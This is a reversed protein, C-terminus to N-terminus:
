VTELATIRATLAEITAQQEKIAAVLLPITDSYSLGLQNPDQQDVAEPLASLFDQAILFSRRKTVKNAADYTYNGTVARIGLIKTLADTIPELNVKLREDSVATWATSTNVQYLGYSGIGGTGAGGGTGMYLNTDTSSKYGIHCEVQSAKLMYIQLAVNEPSTLSLGQPATVSPSAGGYGLQVDGASTIRMKEALVDGGRTSFAMYSNSGTAATQNLVEIKGFAGLVASGLGFNISPGVGAGVGSGSNTLNLACLSSAGSVDSHLKAAPATTGIGVNGASDIRMRESGSTSLKHTLANWNADLWVGGTRSYSQAWSGTTTDTYFEWGAGTTPNGNGQFAVGGGAVVLKATPSSTGVGLNTGDFTLASGSTLVKSGNLYTVGNATGGSLTTAGSASLTTFAGSSATSAGVTGNINISATGTLNTVVGSSPTGLAPTVLTPSTNLVNSGTGTNAVSVVNKSADLALATSATLGALNNVGSTSLTTFAGSSATSAGVSTGDVAGGNIDVTGSTLTNITVANITGGEVKDGSIANDPITVTGSATLNTFTGAAATTGGITVADATGGNIDATDAVLSDINATGDIYLDKFELSGSGLDVTGDTKPLVATASVVVDQTPGVKTIPAGEASTGDHTHGTSANFAAEVGNFENDLDVANVINGDAINNSTDTRIYGTM